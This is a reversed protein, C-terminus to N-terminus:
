DFGARYSILSSNCLNHNWANHSAPMNRSVTAVKVMEQALGATWSEFHTAPV